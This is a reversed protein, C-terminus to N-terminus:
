SLDGKIIQSCIIKNLEDENMNEPVFLIGGVFELPELTNLFVTDCFDADGKISKLEGLSSVNQGFYADGGIEELQILKFLKNPTFSVDGGVKKLVGTTEIEPNLTLNKGIFELKGLDKIDSLDIRLSGGITKLNGLSKVSSYRFSADGKIIELDGLDAIDSGCFDADGNIIKIHKLKTLTSNNFDANGRIESVNEFLKDESIGLDQFTYNIPPLRYENISISDGELTEPEYDFYKLIKFYDKNTIAEKLNKNLTVLEQNLEKANDYTIKAADALLMKNEQIYNDLIEFYEPTIIANNLESQIECLCEDVFRLGLKPEGNKLWVHFEGASLAVRANYAKTCWTKNSLVKLKTVNNSFNNPDEKQSSIKIWGSFNKTENQIFYEKLKKCYLDNFNFQLDKNKALNQELELKTEKFIDESLPPPLKDNNNKVNKLISSLVILALPASALDFGIFNRWEYILERKREAVTASKANSKSEIIKYLQDYTWGYFYNINEFKEVPAKFKRVCAYDFGKFQNPKMATFTQAQYSQIRM